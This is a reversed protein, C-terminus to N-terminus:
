AIVKTQLTLEQLESNMQKQAPTDVISKYIELQQKLVHCSSARERESARTGPVRQRFVQALSWGKGDELVRQLCVQELLL